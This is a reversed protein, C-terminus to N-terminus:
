PFLFGPFLTKYENGRPFVLKAVASLSCAIFGGLHNRNVRNKRVNISSEHLKETFAKGVTATFVGVCAARGGNAVGVEGAGVTTRGEAVGVSIDIRASVIDM